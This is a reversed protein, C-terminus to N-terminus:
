RTRSSGREVGLLGSQHHHGREGSTASPWSRSLAGGDRRPRAARLRHRRPDPLRLPRAAGAGAASASRAQGGAAAAGPAGDADLLVPHGQLILEHAWRPLCTARARAPSASPSWTSPTTSSPERRRLREVQQAVAPPFRDLQLTRFTKEPPLGSQTCCAPSGASTASPQVRQPGARVPLGRPDAGRQGGQAGPGRVREAM